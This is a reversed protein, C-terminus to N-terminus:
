DKDKSDQLQKRAAEFDIENTGDIEASEAEEMAEDYADDADGKDLSDVTPLRGLLFFAVTPDGTTQSLIGDYMENLHPHTLMMLSAMGMSANMAERTDKEEDSEVYSYYEAPYEEQFLTVLEDEFANILAPCHEQIEVGYFPKDAMAVYFVSNHPLKCQHLEGSFSLKIESYTSTITLPNAFAKSLNLKVLIKGMLHEPLEVGPVTSDVFVIIKGAAVFNALLISLMKVTDVM